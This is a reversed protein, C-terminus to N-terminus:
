LMKQIQAFREYFQEYFDAKGDYPKIYFLNLLYMNMKQALEANENHCLFDTIDKLFYHWDCIFKEYKGLKPTDIWSKVKVKTRNKYSCEHVQLFYQFTGNDYIRGLPFLRCIGPRYEHISCRGSENLFGCDPNMKINPLAIGEVVNLEVHGEEILQMLGKGTGAVLRNVDYPDLIISSEMGRCCDSCGKCDNCGAKVMDNATYLKGDSIEEMSINREM